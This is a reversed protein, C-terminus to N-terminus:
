RGLPLIRRLTEALAEIAARSLAEREDQKMQEVERQVDVLRIRRRENAELEQVIQQLM